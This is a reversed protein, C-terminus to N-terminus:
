ISPFTTQFSKGSDFSLLQFYKKEGDGSAFVTTLVPVRYGKRLPGELIDIRCLARILNCRFLTAEV